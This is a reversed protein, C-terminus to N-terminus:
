SVAVVRSVGAEGETSEELKPDAEPTTPHATGRLLLTVTIATATYTVGVGPWIEKYEIANFLPLNTQWHRPDSGHLYNAHAALPNRATIVPDGPALRGAFTIQVATQGQQLIVGHNHFWAKFEAGAGIYRIAPDAQGQNEVFAFPIHPSPSDTKAQATAVLCFAIALRTHKM